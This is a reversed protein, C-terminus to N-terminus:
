EIVELVKGEQDTITTPVLEVTLPLNSLMYIGAHAGVVGSLEELADEPLTLVLRGDEESAAAQEGPRFLVAQSASQLFLIRGKGVRARLMRVLTQVHGTGLRLAAHGNELKAGLEDMYLFGTFSGDREMGDQWVTRFAPIEMMSHRSLDTVCLPIEKELESLFREGNWCMMAEMEDRTLGVAQLFMFRGNPTDLEGLEPDIHFGLATLRTDTELAIPGNADIHHGPGFVNGSSFVYRALNQLLSVPWVPPQEENGRKLRFTLEFGYGSMEPDESEKEYLETFGYTIYHWHPIGHGSKWIEVGDLPDNGGLAYPIVTGYYLGEQDPYLKQVAEAIADFGTQNLENESSMYTEGKEILKELAGKVAGSIRSPIGASDYRCFGGFGSYCLEPKEEFYGTRRKGSRM